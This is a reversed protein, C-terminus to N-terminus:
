PQTNGPDPTATADLIPALTPVDTPTWTPEPTPIDTPTWTPTPTPTDTPTWTPEPTPVDTPTWTPTFTPIDTPTWTSAFTPIDTPTWSPAFTPTDTPTWIPTLTPSATLVSIPPITPTNVPVLTMTRSAQLTLTPTPSFAIEALVPTPTSAVFTSNNGNSSHINIKKIVVGKQGTYGEIHITDGKQLTPLKGNIGDLLVAVNSVMVKNQDVSTIEGDFAVEQKIGAHILSSTENRRKEAFQAKLNDKEDDSGINLQIQEITLKLPYLSDGPLTAAAANALSLGSFLFLFSALSAALSMRLSLRSFFDGVRIPPRNVVAPKPSTFTLGFSDPIQAAWFQMKGAYYPYRELIEDPKNQQLAQLYEELARTFPVEHIDDKGLSTFPQLQGKMRYRRLDVVTDLWPKMKRAYSPYKTYCSDPDEGNGVAKICEDLAQDFPVQEPGLEPNTEPPKREKLIMQLFTRLLEEYEPYSALCSELDTGQELAELCDELVSFFNKM